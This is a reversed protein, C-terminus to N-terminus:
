KPFQDHIKFNNTFVKPLSQTSLSLSDGAVCLDCMMLPNRLSPKLSLKRTYTKLNESDVFSRLNVRSPVRFLLKFEFRVIYDMTNFICGTSCMSLVFNTVRGGGGGGGRLLCRRLLSQYNLM